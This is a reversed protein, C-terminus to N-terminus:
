VSLGSAAMGVSVSEETDVLVLFPLDGAIDVDVVRWVAVATAVRMTCTLQLDVWNEAEIGSM